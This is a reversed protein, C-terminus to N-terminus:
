FLQRETQPCIKPHTYLTLTPVAKFWMICVTAQTQKLYLKGMSAPQSKSWEGEFFRVTLSPSHFVVAQKPTLLTHSVWSSFIVEKKSVNLFLM